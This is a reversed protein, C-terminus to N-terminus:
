HRLATSRMKRMCTVSSISHHRSNASRASSLKFWALYCNVDILLESFYPQRVQRSSKRRVDSQRGLTRVIRLAKAPNQGRAPPGKLALHV